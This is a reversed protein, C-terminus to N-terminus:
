TSQAVSASILAAAISPRDLRFLSATQRNSVNLRVGDAFQELGVLKDNRFELTKTRGTFVARQSTVTLLGSDQVVTTTGIVVSRGRVGGVRYRVGHGLPISVGSSGGRFERVTQDKMLSASFSAYATEGRKLMISPNPLAPFRGSNIGAIALEEFLPPNKKDLRQVPTGLIDGVKGLRDEEEPTVVDDGIVARVAAAMATWAMTDLDKAKYTRRLEPILQRLTELAAADGGAAAPAAEGLLHENAKKAHKEERRRAFMGEHKKAVPEAMADPTAAPTADPFGSAARHNAAAISLLWEYLQKFTANDEVRFVISDPDSLVQPGADTVDKGGLGLTLSGNVLHTAETFAAASVDTLPITRPRDCVLGGEEAAAGSHTITLNVTDATISGNYGIYDAVYRM